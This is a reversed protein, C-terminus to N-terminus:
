DGWKKLHTQNDTNQIDTVVVLNIIGCKHKKKVKWVMPFLQLLYIQIIVPQKPIM